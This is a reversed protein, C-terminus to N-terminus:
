LFCRFFKDTPLGFYYALYLQNSFIAIQTRRTLKCLKNNREAKELVGAPGYADAFLPVITTMAGFGWVVAHVAVTNDLFSALSSSRGHLVVAAYLTM